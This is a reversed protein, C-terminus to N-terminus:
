RPEDKLGFLYGAIAGLIRMAATLAKSDAFALVSALTAVLVLGVVRLNFPGFGPKMRVFVGILTGAGLVAVICVLQNTM